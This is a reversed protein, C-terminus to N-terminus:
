RTLREIRRVAPFTTASLRFGLDRVVEPPWRLAADSDDRPCLALDPPESVIVVGDADLFPRAYRLTVIPDGFARATAADFKGAFEHRRALQVVDSTIVSVRDALQLRACAMRLLDMRRERRDTLVFTVHPLRTALVLGPLGGGSGLDIVRRASPPLAELFAEAHRVADALSTEGLAGRDRLGRLVDLLEDDPM